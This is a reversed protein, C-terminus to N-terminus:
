AAIDIDEVLRVASSGSRDGAFSNCYFRSHLCLRVNNYDEDLTETWEWNFGSLRNGVLEIAARWEEATPVRWNKGTQETLVNAFARGDLLSLHKLYNKSASTLAVQLSFAHYGSIEYGARVFRNFQGVTVQGQMIRFSEGPVDIMKPILLGSAVSALVKGVNKKRVEPNWTRQKPLTSKPSVRIEAMKVMGGQQIEYVINDNAKRPFKVGKLFYFGINVCLFSFIQKQGM